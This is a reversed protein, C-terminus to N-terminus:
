GLVAFVILFSCITITGVILLTAAFAKLVRSSSTYELGSLAPRRRLRRATVFTGYPVRKLHDVAKEVDKESLPKSEKAKTLSSSHLM